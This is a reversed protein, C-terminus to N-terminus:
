CPATDLVVDTTDTSETMNSRGSGTRYGVGEFSDQKVALGTEGGWSLRLEENSGHGMKKKRELVMKAHEEQKALKKQLKTIERERNL